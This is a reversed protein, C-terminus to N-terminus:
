QASASFVCYSDTRGVSSGLETGPVAQGTCPVERVVSVEQDSSALDGLRVDCVDAAKIDTSIIIAVFTKENTEKIKVCSVSNM